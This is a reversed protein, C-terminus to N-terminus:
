VISKFSQITERRTKEYSHYAGTCLTVVVVFAPTEGFLLVPPTFLLTSANFM